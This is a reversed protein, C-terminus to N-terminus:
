RATPVGWDVPETETFEDVGPEMETWADVLQAESEFSASSDGSVSVAAVTPRVTLASAECVDAACSCEAALLRQLAGAPDAGVAADAAAVKGEGETAEGKAADDGALAVLLDSGQQIVAMVEPNAAVVKVLGARLMELQIQVACATLGRRTREKSLRNLARAKLQLTSARASDVTDLLVDRSAILLTIKADQRAIKHALMWLDRHQLESAEKIGAEFFHKLRRNERSPNPTLHRPRPPIIAPSVHASATAL